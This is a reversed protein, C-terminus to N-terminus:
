RRGPLHDGRAERAGQVHMPVRAHARAGHGDDVRRGEMRHWPGGHDRHAGVLREAAERAPVQACRGPASFAELSQVARPAGPAFAVQSADEAPACVMFGCWRISPPSPARSSSASTGSTDSSREACRMDTAPQVNWQRALHEGAGGLGREARELRARLTDGGAKVGVRRQSRGCRPPVLGPPPSEPLYDGPACSGTSGEGRRRQAHPQGSPAARGSTEPLMVLAGVVGVLLGIVLAVPLPGPACTSARWCIRRSRSSPRAWRGSRWRAGSRCAIWSSNSECWGVYSPWPGSDM